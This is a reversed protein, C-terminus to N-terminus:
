ASPPFRDIRIATAGNSHFAFSVMLWGVMELIRCLARGAGGDWRLNVVHETACGVSESSSNGGGDLLGGCLLDSSAAVVVRPVRGARDRQVLGLGVQRGADGNSSVWRVLHQKVHVRRCVM